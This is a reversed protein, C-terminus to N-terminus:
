LNITHTPVESIKKSGNKSRYVKDIVNLADKGSIRIISLGSKSLSTAIAAITDNTM